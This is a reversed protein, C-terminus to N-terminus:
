LGRPNGMFRDGIEDAVYFADFEEPLNRYAASGPQGALV